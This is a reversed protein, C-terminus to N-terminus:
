VFSETGPESCLTALINNVHKAQRFKKHGQLIQKKRISQVPHSTDCRWFRHIIYTEWSRQKDCAKQKYHGIALNFRRTSVPCNQWQLSNIPYLLITMTVNGSASSVYASEGRYCCASCCNFVIVRSWFLVFLVYTLNTSMYNTRTNIMENANEIADLRGQANVWQTIHTVRSTLWFFIPAVDFISFM